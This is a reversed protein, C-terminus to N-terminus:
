LTLEPVALTIYLFGTEFFFFSLFFSLFFLFSFVIRGFIVLEVTTVELELSNSSMKSLSIWLILV